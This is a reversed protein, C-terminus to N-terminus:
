MSLLDRYLREIFAIDISSFKEEMRRLANAGMRKRLEMDGVLSYLREALLPPNSPAVLFGSEGDVIMEAPGGENSAVIAKGMVMAELVVLGYPEPHTSAHIFVDLTNLIDPVDNRYGTVIIRNRLGHGTIKEQLEQYYQIDDETTKSADGILLCVLDPYKKSLINVADIVTLQGKWRQLNGVIGIVVQGDKIGFERRIDGPKRKMRKRFEEADIRDYFTTYSSLDIGLAKLNDRTSISMGLIYDYLRSHVGCYPPIQHYYGRQHGIIKRRTVKTAFVWEIGGFISNNMHVIHIRNMLIFLTFYMFPFINTTFANYVRQVTRFFANKTFPEMATGTLFKSFDTGKPKNYVIVRAGARRFLDMIHNPEYFMV